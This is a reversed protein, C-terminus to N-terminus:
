VLYLEYINLLPLFLTNQRQVLADAGRLRGFCHRSQSAWIHHNMQSIGLVWEMMRYIFSGAKAM